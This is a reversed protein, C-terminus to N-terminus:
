TVNSQITSSRLHLLQIAPSAQGMLAQSRTGCLSSVTQFGHRLPRVWYLLSLNLLGRSSVLRVQAGAERGRDDKEGAERLDPM